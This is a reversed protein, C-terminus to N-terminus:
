PNRSMTTAIGNTRVFESVAIPAAHTAMTTTNKECSRERTEMRDPAFAPNRERKETKAAIMKTFEKPTNWSRPRPSVKVPLVEIQDSSRGRIGFYRKPLGM